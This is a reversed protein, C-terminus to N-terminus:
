SEGPGSSPPPFSGTASSDSSTSAPNPLCPIVSCWGHPIGMLAEVWRPNLVVQGVVKGNRIPLTQDLLTTGTKHKSGPKRNSTSNRSSVAVPTAWLEPRNGPTNPAAPDRLGVTEHFVARPLQDTRPRTSGDSNVRTLTMGPADKWDRSSATPWMKEGKRSKTEPERDMTRGLVEPHNSLGLQGRNPQCGIKSGESATATPWYSSESEGTPQVASMRRSFDGRQSEVCAKWGTDSALWTPLSRDCDSTSTDRSTRSSCSPHSATTSAAESGLGCTGITMPAVCSGRPQSRSAHTDVLSSIWAEVFDTSLCPNLIRGSLHQLWSVKNWADFWAQAPMRKSRWMLSQECAHSVDSLGSISVGTDPVYLSTISQIICKPLIWM